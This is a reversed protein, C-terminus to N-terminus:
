TRAMACRLGEVLAQLGATIFKNSRASSVLFCKKDSLTVEVEASMGDITVKYNFLHVRELSLAKCLASCLAELLNKGEGVVHIIKEGIKLKVWATHTSEWTFGNLSSKANVEFSIVQFDNKDTPEFSTKKLTEEGGVIPKKRYNRPCHSLIAM